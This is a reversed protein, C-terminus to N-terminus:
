SLFHLNEKVGMSDRRQVRAFIRLMSVTGSQASESYLSEEWGRATLNM